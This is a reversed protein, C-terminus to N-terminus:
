CRTSVRALLRPPFRGPGRHQQLSDLGFLFTSVSGKSSRNFKDVAYIVSRGSTAAKHSICSAGMETRGLSIWAQGRQDIAMWGIPERQKQSLSLLVLGELSRAEWRGGKVVPKLVGLTMGYSAPNGPCPAALACHTSMMLALALAVAYSFTRM